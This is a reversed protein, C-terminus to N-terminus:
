KFGSRSYALGGSHEINPNSKAPNDIAPTTAICLGSLDLGLGFELRSLLKPIFGGCIVCWTLTRLKWHLGLRFGSIASVGWALM